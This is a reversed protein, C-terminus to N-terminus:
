RFSMGCWRLVVYVEQIMHMFSQVEDGVEELQKKTLQEHEKQTRTLTEELTQLQGQAEDRSQQEMALQAAHQGALAERMAVEDTVQAMFSSSHQLSPLQSQTYM